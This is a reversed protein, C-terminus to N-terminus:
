RQGLEIGMKKGHEEDVDFLKSGTGRVKHKHKGLTQKSTM